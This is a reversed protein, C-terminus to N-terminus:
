LFRVGVKTASRWIVECARASGIRPKLTFEKPCSMIDRPMLLAGTESCNLINCGITSHGGDFVIQAEKVVHRRPGRRRERAREEPFDLEGM